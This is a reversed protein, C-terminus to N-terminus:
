PMPRDASWVSAFADIARQLHERTHAASLQVRIRARGRPVVPHAFGIVYIGHDLLADALRLADAEDYIMVPLIASEGPLVELGIEELGGRLYAVNDRLRQLREPEADLIDLAALTAAAVPPALTNSFLYPRSRQRLLDVLDGAGAICGGSAGSLAKGFTTTVIDVKGDVGFHEATGRGRAGLVGSGHCDDIMVMAGHAQAREVIGPLPALDGDMSFVADTCILARRASSAAHLQAELDALDAHAYRHRAAKSLRVGDIISAHNLQDSIIADGEGLLPEFVGGNADFCAAYLIADECSLWDAIREELQRHLVTTGCIFRVSGMGVGWRAAADQAASVVRPDSALGLYNNACFNVVKRTQGDRGRVTIEAAQPSDLIRETKYLGQDRLEALEAALESRTQETM